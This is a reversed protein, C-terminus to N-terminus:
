IRLAREGKETIITQGWYVLHHVLAQGQDGRWSSFWDGGARSVASLIYKGWRSLCGYACADSESHSLCLLYIYKRAKNPLLENTMRRPQYSKPTVVPRHWDTKARAFAEDGWSTPQINEATNRRRKMVSKAFILVKMLSDQRFHPEFHMPAM